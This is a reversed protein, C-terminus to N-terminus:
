GAMCRSSRRSHPDGRGRPLGAAAGGPAPAIGGPRPCPDDRYRNHWLRPGHAAAAAILAADAARAATHVEQAGRAARGGAPTSCCCAISRSAARSGRSSLSSSTVRSAMAMVSALTLCLWRMFVGARPERDLYTATFRVVIWGVFTILLLLTVGVVDRRASLGIVTSAWWRRRRRAPRSLVAALAVASVLAALALAEVVRTRRWGAFAAAALLAAPVFPLADM